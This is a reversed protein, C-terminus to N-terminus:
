VAMEMKLYKHPYYGCLVFDSACLEDWQKTAVADSVMLVPAPRLPRQLQEQCPVLHNSYLHTDGTSIILEHPVMSARKALIHTLVTYSFINWVLGLGVDVSRQYMHCSLRRPGGIPDDSVYFQVVIGHCPPLVMRPLDVPNYTTMLIRRSYPDHRLMDEVQALQDVAQGFHRWQYGYMPGMDGEQYDFLGRGDLFERTTNAKWINVGKAELVKSSTDGRLFFLLEEIVSTPNVRKSTILPVHKSINFRLQHGFLSVTGTGTRDPRLRDQHSVLKTLLNIYPLEPHSCGEYHGSGDRAYFVWVHDKESGQVTTSIVARPGFVRDLMDSPADQPTEPAGDGLAQSEYLIVGHVSQLLEEPLNTHGAGHIWESGVLYTPPATIGLDEKEVDQQLASFLATPSDQHTWPSACIVVSSQRHAGLVDDQLRQALQSADSSYFLRGSPGHSALVLTIM